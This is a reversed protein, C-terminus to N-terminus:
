DLKTKLLTVIRDYEERNNHKLSELGTMFADAQKYTVNQYGEKVADIQLSMSRFDQIAKHQRADLRDLDVTSLIVNLADITRGLQKGYSATTEVIQQELQPNDTENQYINIFGFMKMSNTWWSWPNITQLVDGSLPYKNM